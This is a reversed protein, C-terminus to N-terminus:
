FQNSGGVLGTNGGQPVVALKNDNCYKLISAVQETTKPKLVLQSQGRYKRMWDENFFLLDDEDTIISNEPLVSKFYEIDELQKFKADRQVKPFLYRGYLYQKTSYSAVPLVM